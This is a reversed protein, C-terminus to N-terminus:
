KQCKAFHLKQHHEGTYAALAKAATAALEKSKFRVFFTNPFYVGALDPDGSDLLLEPVENVELCRFNFM